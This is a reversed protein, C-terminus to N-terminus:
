SDPGGTKSWFVDLLLIFLEDVDVKAKLSVVPANDKINMFGSVLYYINKLGDWLGINRLLDGASGLKKHVFRLGPPM